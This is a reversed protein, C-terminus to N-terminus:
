HGIRPIKFVQSKLCNSWKIFGSKPSRLSVSIGSFAPSRLRRHRGNKNMQAKLGRIHRLIFLGRVATGKYWQVATFRHKVGKKHFINPM